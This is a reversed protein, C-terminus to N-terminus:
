KKIKPRIQNFYFNWISFGGRRQHNQMFIVSANINIISSEHHCLSIWAHVERANRNKLGSMIFIAEVDIM